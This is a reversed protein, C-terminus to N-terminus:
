TKMCSSGARLRMSWRRAVGASPLVSITSLATIRVPLVGEVVLGGLMRIRAIRGNEVEARELFQDARVEIASERLLDHFVRLAKHPEFQWEEDKGYLRGIRRYVDRAMGGVVHQKGFDTWGLGGTTLGGVHRGPNLLTVSHGRRAAEVAATVGASTAGYVCVDARLRQPRSDIWAPLFYHPRRDLM